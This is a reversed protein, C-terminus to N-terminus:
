HWGAGLLDDGLEELRMGTTPEVPDSPAPGDGAGATPTTREGPGIAPPTPEPRARVSSADAPVSRGIPAPGPARDTAPSPRSWPAPGPATSAADDPRRPPRPETRLASPVTTGATSTATSRSAADLAAAGDDSTSDTPPRLADADLRFGSLIRQLEIALEALHGAARETRDAGDTATGAEIAVSAISSSIDTTGQTLVQLNATVEQTTASQEEVAGAITTSAENVKNILTSIDAIAQVAAVSEQQIAEIKNRIEDTATSTQSALAKVENAVVAFGRGAEGVRAAEITANLALLDTQEAISTIVNVVDGIDSASNELAQMRERTSVTVEVAQSSVAAAEATNDFIERVSASMQDMARSVTGSTASIEEAAAAVDSAKTSTSRATEAMEQSLDTLGSASSALESATAEVGVMTTGVADLATNVAAAIKGVEGSGEGLRPTLDGDAVLALQEASRRLPDAVSRALVWGLTAVLALMLGGIAVISSRIGDLEALADDLDQAVLFGWGYGDFGRAGGSTAYGVIQGTTGPAGARFGSAGPEAVAAAAVEWGADVLNASLVGAADGADLVLGDVGLVKVEVTELGDTAFGARVEATIAGVVREFSAVNYWVGAVDGNSGVIPAAFGIGIRDDGYVDGVVTSREVWGSGSRGVVEGAAAARFWAEGSVDLGQLFGTALPQGLHDVRNVGIVRGDGDAVLMLDYVGYITTLEDILEQRGAQSGLAMPNAAFAQVDGLRQYLDRDVTEGAVVAAEELRQGAQDVVVAATRRYGYWGLVLLPVVGVIVVGITMRAKLGFSRARRTPLPM